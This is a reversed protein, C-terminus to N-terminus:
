QFLEVIESIASAAFVIVSVEGGRGHENFVIGDFGMKRIAPAIADTLDENPNFENWEFGWEDKKNFAEDLTAAWVNGRGDTSWWKEVPIALPIGNELLLSEVKTRTVAGGSFLPRLDLANSLAVKAKVLVGDDGEAYQAAYGAAETFHLGGPFNEPNLGKGETFGRFLTATFKM